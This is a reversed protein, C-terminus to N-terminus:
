VGLQYGGGGCPRRGMTLSSTVSSPLKAGKEDAQDEPSVEENQLPSVELLPPCEGPFRFPFTPPVSPELFSKSVLKKCM